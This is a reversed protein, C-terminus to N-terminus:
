GVKYEHGTELLLALAKCRNTIIPFDSPKGSLLKGNEDVVAQSVVKMKKIEDM